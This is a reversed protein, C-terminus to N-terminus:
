GAETWVNGGVWRAFMGDDMWAAVDAPVDVWSVSEGAAVRLRLERWSTRLGVHRSIAREPPPTDLGLCRRLADNVTGEGPDDIVTGDDLTTTSSEAGSRDVATVIRARRREPNASPALPAPPAAWGFCVVGLVKWEAPATFGLLHNLPHDGAPLPRVGLSDDDVMFIRHPQYWGADCVAADLLTVLRDLRDPEPLLPETTM